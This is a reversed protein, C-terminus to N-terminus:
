FGTSLTVAVGNDPRADGLVKIRYDVAIRAAAGGLDLAVSASPGVDLRGAFKQAGGWAGAGIQVRAPGAALLPREVRVQGDVFATAYRGGVWGAQGYTEASFGFPLAVPSLEAIAAVAPRVSTEGAIRTVRAEGQLRIPVSPIPRAGLGLALDGQAPRAPSHVARLYAQPRYESAGFDARLVVGGQTGGYALAPAAGTALRPLGSGPRWAYWADVRWGKRRLQISSPPLEAPRASAIVPAPASPRIMAPGDVVVLSAKHEASLTAQTVTPQRALRHTAAKELQAGGRQSAMRQATQPAASRPQVRGIPAWIDTPVPRDFRVSGDAQAVAEPYTPTEWTLARGGIWMAGIALLVVVPEGRRRQRPVATM